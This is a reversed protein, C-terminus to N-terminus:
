HPPHVRFRQPNCRLSNPDERPLETDPGPAAVASTNQFLGDTESPAFRTMTMLHPTHSRRTVPRPLQTNNRSVHYLSDYRADLFRADGVSCRM